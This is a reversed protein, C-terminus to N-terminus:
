RVAQNNEFRRSVSWYQLHSLSTRLYKHVISMHMMQGHNQYCSGGFLEKWATIQLLCYLAIVCSIPIMVAICCCKGCPVYKM